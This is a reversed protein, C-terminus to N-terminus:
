IKMLSLLFNSIKKPLLLYAIRLPLYLYFWPYNKRYKYAIQLWLIWQKRAKTVSVWQTNTRYCLAYDPLNHISYKTGIRLRYEYDEANNYAPNYMWVDVIVDKRIIISAHAFQNFRMLRSRIADDSTPIDFKWLVQGAENINIVGTGCLWYWPHEEMFSVQKQLKDKECWIDDDDIRAIYAWQSLEIGKNLSLTLQLNHANKYYRIRKDKKAYSLITKEIDNTSADNIIILEFHTYSQDLVSQISESLWAHNGNYTPLLISVLPNHM